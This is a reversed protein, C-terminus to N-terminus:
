LRLAAQGPAGRATRVPHAHWGRAHQAYRTGDCRLDGASPASLPAHRISKRQAEERQAGGVEGHDDARLNPNPGSHPNPNPAPNLDPNLTFTRTPTLTRPGDM